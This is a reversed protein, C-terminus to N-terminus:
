RAEGFSIPFFHPGDACLCVVCQGHATVGRGNRTYTLIEGKPQKDAIVRVKLSVCILLERLLDYACSPQGM